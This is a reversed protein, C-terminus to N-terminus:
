ELMGPADMAAQAVAAQWTAILDAGGPVRGDYGAIVQGMVRESVAAIGEPSLTNVTHGEMGAVRAGAGAEWQDVIAGTRAAEECGSNARLIDQVEPSLADFRARAMFAVGTAGGLPAILHDTTVEQLNFVPFATWSMFTGDATGRQLAQYQDPLQISLPTGGYAQVIGAAIPSGTMIKTGALDEMRTLPRGNLHASVQPFPVFLLPVYNDWEAGFDGNEYLRCYALAAAASSETMLPMTSVLSRPFNGPQYVPLGWTIQVVDDILRDVFNDPNIMMQGHQMTVQLTDGGQANVRETWPGLILRVLASQEVNGTGFTLTEASGAMPTMLATAAMLSAVLTTKM